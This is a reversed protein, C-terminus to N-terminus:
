YLIFKVIQLIETLIYVSLNVFYACLYSAYLVSLVYYVCILFFSIFLFYPLFRLLYKVSIATAKVLLKLLCLWFNNFLITLPIKFAKAHFYHRFNDLVYSTPLLAFPRIGFHTNWSFLARWVKRFVFM